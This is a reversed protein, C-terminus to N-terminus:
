ERISQSLPLTPAIAHAVQHLMFQSDRWVSRPALRKWPTDAAETNRTLYTESSSHEM